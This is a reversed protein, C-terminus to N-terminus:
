LETKAGEAGSEIDGASEGEVAAATEDVWVPLDENLRKYRADGGVVRDLFSGVDTGEM